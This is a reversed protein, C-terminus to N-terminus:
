CFIYGRKQFIKLLHSYIKETLESDNTDIIKRKKEYDKPSDVAINM